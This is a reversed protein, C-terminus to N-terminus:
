SYHTTRCPRSDWDCIAGMKPNRDWNKIKPYQRNGYTFKESITTIKQNLTQVDRIDELHNYNKIDEMANHFLERIDSYEERLDM